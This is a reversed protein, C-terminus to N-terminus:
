QLYACNSARAAPRACPQARCRYQMLASALPRTRGHPTLQQLHAAARCCCLMGCAATDLPCATCRCARVSGRLCHVQPGIIPPVCVREVQPLVKVSPSRPRAAAPLMRKGRESTRKNPVPASVRARAAKCVRQLRGRVAEAPVVPVHLVLAPWPRGGVGLGLLLAATRAVGPPCSAKGLWLQSVSLGISSSTGTVTWVRLLPGRAARRAPVRQQARRGVGEERPRLVLRQLRRQQLKALALQPAAAHRRRPDGAVDVAAALDARLAECQTM